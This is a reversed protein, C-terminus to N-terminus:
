MPYDPPPGMYFRSCNGVARSMARAKQRALLVEHSWFSSKIVVPTNGFIFEFGIEWAGMDVYLASPCEELVVRIFDNELVLPVDM